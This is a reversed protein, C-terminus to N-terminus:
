AAARMQAHNCFRDIEADLKNFISSIPRPHRANDDDTLTAWGPRLIRLHVKSYLFAVNFGATGGRLWGSIVRVYGTERSRRL